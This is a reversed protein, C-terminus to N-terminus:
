REDVFAYGCQASSWKLYYADDPRGATVNGVGENYSRCVPAYAITNQFGWVRMLYSRCWGLYAIGTALSNAPATQDAKTAPLLGEDIMQQVTAPLVQMLGISGRGDTSVITPNWGSEIRAHAMVYSVPLWPKDAVMQRITPLMMQQFTTLPIQM